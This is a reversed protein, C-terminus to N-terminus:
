KHLFHMGNRKFTLKTWLRLEINMGVVVKLFLKVENEGCHNTNDLVLWHRM